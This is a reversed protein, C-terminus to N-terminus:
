VRFGLGRFGLGWVQFGQPTLSRIFDRQQEDENRSIDTIWSFTDFGLAKPNLALTLM